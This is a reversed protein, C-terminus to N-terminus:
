ANQPRDLNWPLVEFRLKTCEANFTFLTGLTLDQLLSNYPKLNCLCITRSWRGNLLDKRECLAATKWGKVSTLAWGSIECESTSKWQSTAQRESATRAARRSRGRERRKRLRKSRQEVTEAAHRARDRESRRQWMDKGYKLYVRCTCHKTNVSHRM